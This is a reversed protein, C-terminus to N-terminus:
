GTSPADGCLVGNGPASERMTEFNPADEEQKAPLKTLQNAAVEVCEKLARTWKGKTIWDLTCTYGSIIMRHVVEENLHLDLTTQKRLFSDDLVCVNHPFNERLKNLMPDQLYSTCKILGTLFTFWSPESPPTNMKLLWAHLTESAEFVTPVSCTLCGDVLEMGDLHLPTFLFPICCSAYIADCVRVNPHTSARLAVPTSTRIDTCVAVFEVRLLRHLDGLTSNPSLGNRQLINSICERFGTGDDVGYNRFLLSVDIGNLVKRMDVMEFLAAKRDESSLGLMLALAAICGASTGSVGKLDQRWAQFDIQSELADLMGVYACGLTGSSGFSVYKWM